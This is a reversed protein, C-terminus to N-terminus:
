TSTVKHYNINGLPPPLSSQKVDRPLRLTRKFAINFGSGFQIGDETYKIENIRKDEKKTFFDFNFGFKICFIM